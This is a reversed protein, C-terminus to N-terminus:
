ALLATDKLFLKIKFLVQEPTCKCTWCCGRKTNWKPFKFCEGFFKWDGRVEVLAARIGLKEPEGPQSAKRLRTKDGKDTRFESGDHRRRPWTGNAAHQLSWAIVEMLDDWTHDSIRSCRDSAATPDQICRETRAFESQLERLERVQGLQM